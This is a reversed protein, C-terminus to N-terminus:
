LKHKSGESCRMRTETLMGPQWGSLLLPARTSGAGGFRPPQRDFPADKPTFLVWQIVKDKGIILVALLPAYVIVGNNFLWCCGSIPLLTVTELVRISPPAFATQVLPFKANCCARAIQARVAMKKQNM